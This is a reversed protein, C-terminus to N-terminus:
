KSYKKKRRPDKPKDEILDKKILSNPSESKKNSILGSMNNSSNLNNYSISNSNLNFNDNNQTNANNPNLNYKLSNLGQSDGTEILKLFVKKLDENNNISFILNPDNLNKLFDDLNIQLNMTNIVNSSIQKYSNLDKMNKSPTNKTSESKNEIMFFNEEESSSEEDSAQSNENSVIPSIKGNNFTSGKLKELSSTEDTKSESKSETNPKNIPAKNLLSTLLANNKSLEQSFLEPKHSILNSLHGLASLNNINTSQKNDPNNILNTASNAGLNNLNTLNSNKPLNFNANLNSPTNGAVNQSNTANNQNINQFINKQDSKIQNLNPQEFPNMKNNLLNAVNMVPKNVLM